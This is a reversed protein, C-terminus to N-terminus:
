SREPPKQGWTKNAEFRASTEKLVQQWDAERKKDPLVGLEIIAFQIVNELSVRGSPIHLGHLISAKQGAKKEEETKRDYVHMHPFPVDLDPHYHWSLLCKDASEWIGYIYRLTSVRYRDGKETAVKAIEIHQVLELYLRSGDKRRLMIFDTEVEMSGTASVDTKRRSIDLFWRNLRKNWKTLCIVDAVCSIVLRLDQEYAQRAARETKALDDVASL